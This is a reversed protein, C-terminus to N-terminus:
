PTLSYRRAGGEQLWDLVGHAAARGTALCAHLLYGGTPAEWDLMEGAVFVGPMAHLMYGPTCAQWAVGGASSIARGIAAPAGLVVPTAKIRAALSHPNEPLLGGERLLGIAAPSLRLAKRLRNSLSERARTSALRSALEGVDMEPRLDCLLTAQGHAQVHARVAASLAYLAGGELGTETVMLEGRVRQGGFTVAVPKLPAGAFRQSFLPSWAVTFGCNAPQLPVVDVGRAQLLSVWGGTAGLRPWSGGGLALVLAEAEIDQPPGADRTNQVVPQGQTNWGLWRTNASLDVGLGRLRELWARLLPSAKMAVPFVRGSSGAFSDQGLGAMWQRIDEARWADLAPRLWDAAPGYRDCLSAHSESHTINLGGRGAMLFKRGFSPMADCVRVACGAQALVEAAALGAPGGGVVCVRPAVM